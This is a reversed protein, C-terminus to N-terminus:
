VDKIPSPRNALNVQAQGHVVITPDKPETISDLTDNDVPENPSEGSATEQIPYTAISSTITNDITQVAPATPREARLIELETRTLDWGDAIAKAEISPHM